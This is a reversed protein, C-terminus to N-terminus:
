SLPTTFYSLLQVFCQLANMVPSLLNHQFAYGDTEGHKNIFPEFEIDDLNAVLREGTAVPKMSKNRDTM